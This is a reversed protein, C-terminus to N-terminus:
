INKRRRWSKLENTFLRYNLALHILVLAALLFGTITHLTELQHKALGFFTWGTQWAVRGSPALFLGIGTFLVLPFDLLLLSSLLARTRVTNLPKM